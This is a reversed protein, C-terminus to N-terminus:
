GTAEYQRQEASCQQWRIAVMRLRSAACAFFPLTSAAATSLVTRSTSRRLLRLRRASRFASAATSSNALTRSTAMRSFPLLARLLCRAAAFCFGAGAAM